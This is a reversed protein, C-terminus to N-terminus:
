RPYVRGFWTGQPSVLGATSSVSRMPQGVMSALASPPVQKRMVKGILKDWAEKAENTKTEIVEEDEEGELLGEIVANRAAKLAVKREHKGAISMAETLSATGNSKWTRLSTQMWNKPLLCKQKRSVQLDRLENIAGIIKKIEDHAFDMADMMADESMEKAGGEVMCVADETGAVVLNLDADVM